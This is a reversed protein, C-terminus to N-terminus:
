PFRDFLEALNTFLFEAFRHAMRLRPLRTRPQHFEELHYAHHRRYVIVRGILGLYLPVRQVVGATPRNPEGAEGIPYCNM